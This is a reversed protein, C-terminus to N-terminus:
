GRDEPAEGPMWEAGNSLEITRGALRARVQTLEAGFFVINVSYNVWVVLAVLSGAAGFPSGVAARTLYFGIAFNGLTFLIATAAAGFWVDQWPTRVDPLYRFLLAFLGTVVLFNVVRSAIEIMVPVGDVFGGLYAGISSLATSFILSTLLLFGVSLVMGFALLRGRLFRWFGRGAKSRVDWIANMSGHLEGFVRSAGFLLIGVGILSALIGSRPKKANALATEVVEAGSEGALDSIQGVLEKQAAAEGFVMGAMAVALVLLPALSLISYFSVAAALRSANDHMWESGADRLLKWFGLAHAM